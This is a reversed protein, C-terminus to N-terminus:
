RPPPTGTLAPCTSQPNTTKAKCREIPAVSTLGLRSKLRTFPFWAHKDTVSCQSKDTHKCVDIAYIPHIEWLALREFDKANDRAPNLGAKGDKTCPVHSGDFFLQGTIRVPHIALFPAYDPSDFLDWAAPRFHPIIEAVIGHCPVRDNVDATLDIHIDNYACGRLNCQVSEGNGKTLPEDKDVNAHRAGLVYGVFVVSKGEGLRTGDDLTIIDALQSRSPPSEGRPISPENTSADGLDRFNKISVPVIKNVPACFNNKRANQLDNANNRHCGTNGCLFDIQRPKGSFPKLQLPLPQGCKTFKPKKAACVAPLLLIAIVGGVLRLRVHRQM